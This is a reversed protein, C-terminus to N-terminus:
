CGNLTYNARAYACSGMHTHINSVVSCVLSCPAASVCLMDAPCMALYLDGKSGPIECSRNELWTKENPFIEQEIYSKFCFSKRRCRTDRKQLTFSTYNKVVNM